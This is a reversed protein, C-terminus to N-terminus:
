AGSLLDRLAALQRVVEAPSGGGRTARRRVSEEPDVLALDEETLGIGALDDATARSLDRGDAALAAILRGVTQHARRFPEGRRVLAEALDLAATDPVPPPPHFELSGMLGILAELAGAATDDADFLAPKDEQLDRNYSLPLGKQIALLTLLNGSVRGARGRVLEPVDPNRKHPLASSGTAYADPLTVWSFESSAWLVLDEALRSLHAMLQACCFAYEAAFDRSSVADLSNQFVAPLGLEDAVIGPDLLLSSGGGAGAGLPSVAIRTLADLFREGDRVLMWAYALLHHGLSIPQGQQLHTYSPVVVEALGEARAAVVEILRRIQLIRQEGSRILYLRLDLAIQDNRSRGTHLKGAADEGSIEGLRRAVASHVDEDTPRFEFSGGRAEELIQTLGEGLTVAEDESVLGVQGLMKLHALSGVVDLELLRHDAPDVTFDWLRRSPGEGFRGGWLTV